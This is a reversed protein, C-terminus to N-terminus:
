EKAVGLEIRAEAWRQNLDTIIEDWTEGSAGRGADVIRQKWGDSWLGVEAENDIKDLMGETGPTPPNQSVFEVNAAQFAALTAPLDSGKLPPIGGQDFAFGSEDLFWWLYALAAEKNKSHINVAIKYDGGAAAYQQGDVNAPFPIYVIDEPTETLEQFQVVSWSGLFMCAIEGDALMQKSSEWDTTTPDEETLGAAVLDFMLKYITHHARGEAFPDDMEVMKNDYDADGSVSGRHSEWQTLPWGAFYNTYVPIAETADKVMQMSAIFEEPNQGYNTGVGAADLVSQNCAVGQANGTVSLGYVQDDIAKETVFMYAEDLEAVSGLPEFFDPLLNIDLDDPILLVDGYDETNMRIQVEGQYDSMAEFEIKVDPYIANFKAAYEVFDTDVLDTRNTLVTISGSLSPEVPVEDTAEPTAEDTAEVTVEDTAEVTAEVTAVQTPVPTGCASLLGMVLILFAIFTKKLM